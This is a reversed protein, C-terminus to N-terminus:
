SQFVSAEDKVFERGEVFDDPCELLPSAIFLLPSLFPLVGCHHVIVQLVPTEREANM